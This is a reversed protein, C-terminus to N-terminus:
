LIGHSALYHSFAGAPRMKEKEETYAAFIREVVDLPIERLDILKRNRHYRTLSPYEQM